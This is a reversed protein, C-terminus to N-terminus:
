TITDLRKKSKEKRENMEMLKSEKGKRFKGKRKMLESFRLFVECFSCCHLGLQGPVVSEVPEFAKAVM